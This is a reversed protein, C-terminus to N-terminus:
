RTAHRYFNRLVTGPRVDRFASSAPNADRCVGCRGIGGVRLGVLAFTRRLRYPCCHVVRCGLIGPYSRDSTCARNARRETGEAVNRRKSQGRWWDNEIAVLTLEDPVVWRWETPDPSPWQSRDVIDFGLIAQRVDDIAGQRYRAPYRIQLDVARELPARLLEGCRVGRLKICAVNCRGIAIAPRRGRGAARATAAAVRPRGLPGM